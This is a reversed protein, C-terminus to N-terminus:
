NLCFGANREKVCILGANISFETPLGQADIYGGEWAKQIVAAETVGLYDAIEKFTFTIEENSTKM